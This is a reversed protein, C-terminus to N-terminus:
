QLAFWELEFRFTLIYEPRQSKPSLRRKGHYDARLALKNPEVGSGVFLMAVRYQCDSAASGLRIPMRKRGDRRRM